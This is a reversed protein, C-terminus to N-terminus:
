NPNLWRLQMIEVEVNTIDLRDNPVYSGALPELNDTFKQIYLHSKDDIYYKGGAYFHQRSGTTSDAPNHPSFHAVVHTIHSPDVVPPDEAAGGLPDDVVEVEPQPFTTGRRYINANPNSAEPELQILASTWSKGWSLFVNQGHALAEIKDSGVYDYKWNSAMPYRIWNASPLFEPPVEFDLNIAREVDGTLRTIMVLM